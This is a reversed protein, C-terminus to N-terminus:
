SVQRVHVTDNRMLTAFSIKRRRRASHKKVWVSIRSNIMCACGTPASSAEDLFKTTERGNQM